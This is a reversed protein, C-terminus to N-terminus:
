GDINKSNGFYAEFIEESNGLFTYSGTKQGTHNSVGNKLGYEGYKDFIGKTEPNSLV